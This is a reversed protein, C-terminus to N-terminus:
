TRVERFLKLVIIKLALVPVPCNSASIRPLDFRDTQHTVCGRRNGFAMDYGAKVVLNRTEASTRGFPYSFFRVPSGTIEEINKRSINIEKEQEQLSLEAMIPHTITHSGIEFGLSQVNCIDRASLYLADCSRCGNRGMDERHKAYRDAPLIFERNLIGSAVFIISPLKEQQLIPLGFQYTDRYGDDFTFLVQAGKIKREGSLFSLLENPSVFLFHKKLYDIHKKFNAVSTINGHYGGAEADTRENIRHYNLVIVGPRRSVKRILAQTIGTFWFLYALPYVIIGKLKDPFTDM